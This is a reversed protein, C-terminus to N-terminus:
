RKKKEFTKPPLSGVDNRHAPSSDTIKGSQSDMYSYSGDTRKKLVGTKVGDANYYNYARKDKKDQKVKGVLNGHSDYYFIDERIKKSSGTKEKTKENYFDYGGDANEKTEGAPQETVQGFANAAMVCVAICCFVFYEALKNLRKGILM